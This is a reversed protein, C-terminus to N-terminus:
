SKNIVNHLSKKELGCHCSKKMEALVFMDCVAQSMRQTEHCQM